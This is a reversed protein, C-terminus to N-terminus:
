DRFGLTDCSRKKPKSEFHDCLIQITVNVNGTYVETCTRNYDDKFGCVEDHICNECKNTLKM